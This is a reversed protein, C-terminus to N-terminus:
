ITENGQRIRWLGGVQEYFKDLPLKTRLVCNFFNYKALDHDIIDPFVKRHFATGPMPSLITYGAFSVRHSDAFTRLEEFDKENYDPPIVYNGRVKIGNAHFVKIAEDILRAPSNKNYKVLENDRFSEFGSIAVKLGGKALKEILGPNDAATDVRIDMVYEKDIGEAGIRDLLDVAYRLDILTNADAFRVVPYEDLTKLEEIISDISRRYFAGDFQPWISCFTCKYPCGLSTFLYTVPGPGSGARYTTIWPRISERDPMVFDKGAADCPPAVTPSPILHDGRRVLIGGITDLSGGAGLADLVETFTHASQGPCVIDVAPDDFHHPCLTAHLGGAVNLILPNHKKVCSFV